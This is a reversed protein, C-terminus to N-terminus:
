KLQFLTGDERNLRQQFPLCAHDVRPFPRRRACLCRFSRNILFPGDKGIEAVQPDRKRILRAEHAFFLASFFDLRYVAQM